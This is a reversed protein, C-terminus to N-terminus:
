VKIDGHNSFYPNKVRDRSIFCIPNFKLKLQSAIKMDSELDHIVHCIWYTDVKIDRKFENEDVIIKTKDSFSGLGVGAFLGYPTPRTSARTFYKLLGLKYNKIKKKETPPNNLSNYLSKSSLLVSEKMFNMVDENESIYDSINGNTKHFDRFIKVPLSPVRVMFIDHCLYKM